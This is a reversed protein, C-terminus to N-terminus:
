RAWPKSGDPRPDHYRGLEKSSNAGMHARSLALIIIIAPSPSYPHPCSLLYALSPLIPQTFKLFNARTWSARLSAGEM